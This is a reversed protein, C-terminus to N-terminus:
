CGGEPVHRQSGEARDAQQEKDEGDSETTETSEDLDGVNQISVAMLWKVIHKLRSPDNALEAKLVESGCCELLESLLRVVGAKNRLVKHINVFVPLMPTESLKKANQYNEIVAIVNEKSGCTCGEMTNKKARSIGLGHAGEYLTRKGCDLCTTVCCAANM